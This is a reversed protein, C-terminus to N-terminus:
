LALKESGHGHWFSKDEHAILLANPFRPTQLNLFKIEKPIKHISSENPKRITHESHLRFYEAMLSWKM